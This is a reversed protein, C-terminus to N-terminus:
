SDDTVTLRAEYTGPSSYTHAIRAGNGTEGDGFDWEFRAISGDQDSSASADFEVVSATVYQDDGARAVPPENVMIRREATAQSNELGSDDTVTLRATYTGSKAYDHVVERGEATAGDGFDWAYVLINGDADR